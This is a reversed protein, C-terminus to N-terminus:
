RTQKYLFEISSTNPPQIIIDTEFSNSHEVRVKVGDLGDKHLYLVSIDDSIKKGIELSLEEQDDQGLLLHDVDIGLSKILGKAFTGGLLTYAEAGKGSSSGTGDFLILSLIEQQTLFPESNFNVIPNETTGSIFVHVSYQDKEYNAKIDLLPKKVDGTFYLHSEDLTFVKDELQYFGKTITSMGTVLMEQNYNKVISLKNLFEINIDDAIYKLPKRSNVKLYLKFNNFISEEKELIDKLIIIDSDEVIDTGVLEYTITDGLIDINGDIDIKNKDVKLMLNSDLILSFDKTRLTYANSNVQFEGKFIALNYHGLIKIKDNLWFERITVEDEELSLYSKKTSFFTNVYGNDDLKFRYNDIVMNSDADVRFNLVINYFNTIALKVGRDALYELKPSKLEIHFKGEQDQSLEIDAEGRINPIEFDYYSQVKELFDQINNVHSSFALQKTNSVQFDFAEGEVNLKAEEILEKVADYKIFLKLFENHINLFYENEQLLVDGEFSRFKTFKLKPFMEKLAKDDKISNIFTIKYPTDLNMQADFDLTEGQVVLEIKSKEIKDFNFFSQSKFAIKENQLALPLNPIFQNLLINNSKSKLALKGKNNKLMKFNGNLLKSDLDMEFDDGNGTFKGQLDALLYNSISQPLEKIKLVEVDGKYFFTQDDIHVKNHLKFEDAYTMSGKMDSDVTFVEREYDYHLKHKAESLNVNFDNKTVLLNDVQHEIDIWVADHNLRLTSPLKQLGKYNLGLAYKSFLFKDLVIEGKAEITADKVRGKYNLSGFNTKGKFDVKKVQYNFNDLPNVESNYLDLRASKIKVDGYSVPKLTGVIHKIEISKIPMFENSTTNKSYDVKKYKAKVRRNFTSIEKSSINNLKLTDILLLDEEIKGDLTLNALDSDFKLYLADATITLNKALTIKGTEFVFSSFKVGEYVYPNIDFHVTNLVIPYDLSPSEDSSSSGFTNLMSLINDVEVGQADIQRIIIKKYFLSLPNWYILASDFLLKDQFALKKVELGNIINGEISEYTFASTELSNQAIYKISRSDTVIFLLLVCLVLFLEFAVIIWYIFRIM